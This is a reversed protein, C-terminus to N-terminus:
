GAESIDNWDGAYQPKTNSADIRARSCPTFGLECAIRVMIEAQRNVIPLYPSQQPLGQKPSKVLLQTTQAAIAARRHNDQAVIYAALPGKDIRRLVERPANAIAYDWDEKQDATMWDPAETLPGPTPTKRALLQEAKKAGMRLVKLDTPTRKRGQM